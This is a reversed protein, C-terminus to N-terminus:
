VNMQNNLMRVLMVMVNQEYDDKMMDEPHYDFLVNLHLLNYLMMLQLLKMTMMLMMLMMMMRDVEQKLYIM